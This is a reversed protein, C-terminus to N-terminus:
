SQDGCIWGADQAQRGGKGDFHRWRLFRRVRGPHWRNLFSELPILSDGAAVLDRIALVGPGREM